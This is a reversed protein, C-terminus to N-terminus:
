DIPATFFCGGIEDRIESANLESCVKVAPALNQLRIADSKRASIRPPDISALFSDGANSRNVIAYPM